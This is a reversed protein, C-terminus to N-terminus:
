GLWKEYYAIVGLIGGGVAGILTSLLIVIPKDCFKKIREKM